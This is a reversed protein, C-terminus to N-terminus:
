PDPAINTILSSVVVLVPAIVKDAEEGLLM